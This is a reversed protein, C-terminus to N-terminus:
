RKEEMIAKDLLATERHWLNKLHTMKYIVPNSYLANHIQDKAQRAKISFVKYVINNLRGSNVLAYFMNLEELTEFRINLEVPQFKTEEVVKAEAKM